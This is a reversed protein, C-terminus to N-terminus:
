GEIIEVKHGNLQANNLRDRLAGHPNEEYIVAVVKGNILVIKKM